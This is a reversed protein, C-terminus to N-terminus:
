VFPHARVLREGQRASAIFKKEKRRRIKERDEGSLHRLHLAERMIDLNALRCSRVGLLLRLGTDHLM